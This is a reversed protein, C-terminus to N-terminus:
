MELKTSPSEDSDSCSKNQGVYWSGCRNNSISADASSCKSSSPAGELVISSDPSKKECSYPIVNSLREKRKELFRALSAKRAQPVARPMITSSSASGMYTNISKTPDNKLTLILDGNSKAGTKDDTLRPESGTKIQSCSHQVHNATNNLTQTTLNLGDSVMRNSLSPLLSAESRPHGVNIATKCEKSAMLMIAQAMHSPVDDFVNVSGAYFITLQPKKMHPKPANRPTFSGVGNKVFSPNNAVISEFPQQKVATATPNPGNSSGHSKLFPSSMAVPISSPSMTTFSADKFRRTSARRTDTTQNQSAHISFQAVGHREMGSSKEPAKVACATNSAEFADISAAPQLGTSSEFLLKKCKDEGSAKFSMFKQLASAKNQFPWRGASSVSFASDLRGGLSKEMALVRSNRGGVGLFDREM